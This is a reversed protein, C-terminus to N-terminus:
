RPPPPPSSASWTPTCTPGPAAAQTTGSAEGVLTASPDRTYTATATARGPRQGPRHVAVGARVVRGLRRLHLGPAGDADHGPRTVQGFADAKTDGLPRVSTSRPTLRARAAHLLLHRHRRSYCSTASTTPSSSPQRGPDPQRVQRLRVRRHHHRQEVVTLRDALDYTYTNTASAPSGPPRRPRRTATPTGATPSRRSALHRRLDEARRHDLRHLATTASAHPHQGHATPSRPSAPVPQQLQYSAAVGTTANNVRRCGAPPTTPTAPPAPRTRGPQGAPRGRHLTFSSDGSRAPSRVALLGRDDYTFTNRAARRRLDLDARGVCTTASRATPRDGVEAGTGTQGTLNGMSTTPTPSASVGGPLPRDVGGPRGRRLEDTFTRDAPTPTAGGDGARDAIGAPGVHQVHDLFANGRGDTFRTRNGAPRLRLTRAHDRRRRQDAAGRRHAPRDRRLHLHDHHWPRRHVDVM